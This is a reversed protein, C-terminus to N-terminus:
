FEKAMWAPAAHGPGQCCASLVRMKMLTKAYAALNLGLLHFVRQQVPTPKSLVTVPLANDFRVTDCTLNALDTLLTAFSHVPQGDATRKNASEARAAPSVRAFWAAMHPRARRHLPFIPSALRSACDQPRDARHEHGSAKIFDASRIGIL